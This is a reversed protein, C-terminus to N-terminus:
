NAPPVIRANTVVLAFDQDTAGPRNPLGDDILNAAGVSVTYAGAPSAPLFVNELNNRRDADGGAASMGGAFVNGKFTAGDPATVRLDLDNVWAPVAGGLGPGLADTWAVTAKLPKTPDIPEVTVTSSQGASDFVVTQDVAVAGAQWGDIVNGLNFRGWGQQNNPIPKLPRGDADKGGALDDAGNVFAAKVLAPSPTAGGHHDRYWDVFVAYGGSVHPSAMSTGTCMGHLPSAPLATYGGGLAGGAPTGCVAGQAARASVVNQGPAVLTPLFRGDLAPGHATCTCLDDESPTAGAAFRRSGSGGVGILNKGEDPSGQTSTGGSGNMVSFVLALPQDGPEKEDADRVISDFERSTTTARRIARPGGRTRPSSPAATRRRATCRGTATPSRTSRPSASRTRCSRRRAPRWVQGYGFGDTDRLPTAGTGLVIGLTHTGHGIVDDSDGAACAAGATATYDICAAVRGALDPHNADVGGDVHSITVGSGDAGIRQLFAAYGPKVPTATGDAVVQSSREDRLQPRGGAAAVSYVRPLAALAA